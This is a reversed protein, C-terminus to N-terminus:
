GGIRPAKSGGGHWVDYKPDAYRDFFAEMRRGLDARVAAQAPRDVLNLREGPDHKLDYLEDPGNPFRRVYKWEDTRIARTTEFEYFAVNDWEIREGRLAAAFSRGPLKEPVKASLGVCDLLTPYLDYNRVMMDTRKAAPVHDPWRVILPVHM